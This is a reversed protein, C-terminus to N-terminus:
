LISIRLLVSRGGLGSVAKSDLFTSVMGFLSNNPTREAVEMVPVNQPCRRRNVIVGFDGCAYGSKVHKNLADYTVLSPGLPSEYGDVMKQVM